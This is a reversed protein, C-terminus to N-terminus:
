RTVGHSRYHALAQDLAPSPGHERKNARLDKPTMWMWDVQKGEEFVAVKAAIAGRMLRCTNFEILEFTLSM